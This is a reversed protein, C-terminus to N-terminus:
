TPALPRHPRSVEFEHAGPARRLPPLPPPLPSAGPSEPPVQTMGLPGPVRQRATCMPPLQPVFTSATFVSGASYNSYRRSRLTLQTPMLTASCRASLM